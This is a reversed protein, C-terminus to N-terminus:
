AAVAIQEALAWLATADTPWNRRQLEVIFRRAPQRVSFVPDTHGEIELLHRAM